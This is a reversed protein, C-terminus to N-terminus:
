CYKKVEEVIEKPKLMNLNTDITKISDSDNKNINISMEINILRLDEQIESLKRINRKFHSDKEGLIQIILDNLFGQSESDRLLQM